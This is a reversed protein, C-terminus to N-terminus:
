RSRDEEGTDRIIMWRGDAQLQYMTMFRGNWTVPTAGSKPTEVCTDTGWVAALRYVVSVGQIMWTCDFRVKDFQAAHFRQIADRGSMTVGELLLVADPTHMEALGAANGSNFANYWVTTRERAWDPITQASVSTVAIGLMAVAMMSVTRRFKNMVGGFRPCDRLPQRNHTSDLDGEDATRAQRECM